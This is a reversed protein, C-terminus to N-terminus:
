GRRREAHEPLAAVDAATLDDSMPLLIVEIGLRADDVLESMRAPFRRIAFTPSRAPKYYTRAEFRRSPTDCSHGRAGRKITSLASVFPL